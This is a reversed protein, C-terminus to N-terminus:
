RAAEVHATELAARVAAADAVDLRGAAEALDVTAEALAVYSDRLRPLATEIGRVHAGITAADGRSAPGTLAQEPTEHAARDIAGRALRAMAALAVHEDLGAVTALDRAAAVLTVAHNAAITAAAHWAVRDEDALDFPRMGLHVALDHGAARAQPDTATIAAPVGALVAPTVEPTIAVLPHIRLARHGRAELPALEAISVSGSVTAFTIPREAGDRVADALRAVVEATADDPVCLLVLEPDPALVDEVARAVPEVGIARGLLRGARGAGVIGVRSRPAVSVNM